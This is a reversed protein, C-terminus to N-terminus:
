VDFFAMVLGVVSGSVLASWVLDANIVLEPWM